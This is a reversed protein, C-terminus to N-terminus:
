NKCRIVDGVLGGALNVSYIHLTPNTMHRMNNNLQKLAVGITFYPDFSLRKHPTYLMHISYISRSNHVAYLNSLTKERIVLFMLVNSHHLRCLM